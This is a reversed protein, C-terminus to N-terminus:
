LSIYLLKFEVELDNMNCISLSLQTNYISSFIFNFFYSIVHITNFKKELHSTTTSHLHSYSLSIINKSIIRFLPLVNLSKATAYSMTEEDSHKHSMAVGFISTTHLKTNFQKSIEIGYQITDLYVVLYSRVNHQRLEITCWSRRRISITRLVECLPYRMTECIHSIFQSTVKPIIKM